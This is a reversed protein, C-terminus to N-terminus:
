VREGASASLLASALKAGQAVRDSGAARLLATQRHRELDARVGAGVCRVRFWYRRKLSPLSPPLVTQNLKKEPGSSHSRLASGQTSAPMKEISASKSASIFRSRLRHTVTQHHVLGRLEV